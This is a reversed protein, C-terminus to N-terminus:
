RRGKRSNLGLKNLQLVGRKTKVDFDPQQSSSKKKVVKLNDKKTKSSALVQGSVRAEQLQTKERRKRGDLIGIKMKFPMKQQKLPPAGLKTLKDDLLRRKSTEMNTLGFEKVSKFIKQFIKKDNENDESDNERARGGGGGGRGGEERAGSGSGSGRNEEVYKRKKEKRLLYDDPLSVTPCYVTEVPAMDRESGCQEGV